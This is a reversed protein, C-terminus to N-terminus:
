FECKSTMYKARLSYAPFIDIYGLEPNLNSFAEKLGWYWLAKKDKTRSVYRIIFPIKIALEVGGVIAGLQQLVESGSHYCLASFPGTIADIKDITSAQKVLADLTMYFFSLKLLNFARM